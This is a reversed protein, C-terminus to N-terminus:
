SGPGKANRTRRFYEDVRAAITDRAQRAVGAVEDDSLGATPIPKEVYVTVTRGPCLIWSGKRKVDYMGTVAVPVVPLGLDRAVHFIGKRFPGVRGSLTRTGEPFALISHGQELERRVGERIASMRRQRNEPVPITGRSKMFRGYVPIDFHGEQELGQKFHPTSDYMAVHDLENTHNQVFLYCTDPRVEPHVVAHWRAGALAIQGRCYLRSLPELKRPHVVQQLLTMPGLVSVLWSGGAAWLGASVVKDAFGIPEGRRDGIYPSEAGPEPDGNTQRADTM